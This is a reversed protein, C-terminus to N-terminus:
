GVGTSQPGQNQALPIKRKGWWDLIKQPALNLVRSTHELQDNLLDPLIKPPSKLGTIGGYNFWGGAQGAAPTIGLKQAADYWPDAMPGYETQKYVGGKTSGELTDKIAGVDLPQGPKFGGASKYDQYGQKTFWSPHLQGPNLQDYNYLTSRINHTDATVDAQNGSWGERFMTPKPNTNINEAGRAFQDALNVHMGMMPFGPENMAPTWGGAESPVPDGSARRWLLNSSNRMNQPTATRPSTAAGQGAWDRMFQNADDPDLVGQKVLQELVPSTSYFQTLRHAPNSPDTLPQLDSAIKDALPGRADIIQQARGGSPMQKTDPWPAPLQDRYSTQPVTQTTRALADPSTDFMPNQATPWPASKTNAVSAKIANIDDSTPNARPLIAPATVPATAIEEATRAEPAARKAAMALPAAAITTAAMTPSIHEGPKDLMATVDRALQPASADLSPTSGPHTALWAALQGAYDTGVGVLGGAVAAPNVPFMPTNSPIPPRYPSGPLPPGPLNGFISDDWGAM